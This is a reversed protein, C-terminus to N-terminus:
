RRGHLVDNLKELARMDREDIERFQMAGLIGVNTVLPGTSTRISTTTQLMAVAGPITRKGQIAAILNDPGNVEALASTKLNLLASLYSIVPEPMAWSGFLPEADRRQYAELNLIPWSEDHDILNRLNFVVSGIEAPSNQIQRIGEELREFMTLLSKGNIVKCPFGWVRGDIRALVDPNDGKAHNPDDLTVSSSIPLCGLGIFLEFIKNSGSDSLSINQAAPSENLLCLHPVFEDLQQNDHGRLFLRVFEIMSTAKRWMQRIDEMPSIHAERRRHTDLELIDLCVRELDSGPKVSIGYRRLASDFRDILYAAQPFSTLDREPLEAPPEPYSM